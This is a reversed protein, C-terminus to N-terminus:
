ATLRVAVVTLDDRAPVDGRFDTVAAVISEVIAKAPLKRSEVVVRKLREAGFERGRDDIADFVGDTCFVYVDGVVLEFSLEDYASGAFSGLPVGPLTVQAA